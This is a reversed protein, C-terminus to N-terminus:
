CPIKQKKMMDSTKQILSKEPNALYKETITMMNLSEGECFGRNRM